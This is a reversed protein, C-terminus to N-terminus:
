DNQVSTKFKLNPVTMMEFKLILSLRKNLNLIM